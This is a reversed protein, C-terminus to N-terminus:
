FISTGLMFSSVPEEEDSSKYLQFMDDELPEDNYSSHSVLDSDREEELTLGEEAFPNISARHADILAASPRVTTTSLREKDKAKAVNISKPRTVKQQAAAM